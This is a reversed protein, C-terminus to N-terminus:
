EFDYVLAAVRRGDAASITTHRPVMRPMPPALGAGVSASARIIRARVIVHASSGTDYRVAPSSSERARGSAQAAAAASAPLVAILMALTPVFLGMAAFYRMAAPKPLAPKVITGTESM